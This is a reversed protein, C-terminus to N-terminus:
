WDCGKALLLALRELWVRDVEDFGDREACDVDIIAVLKGEVVVPVVVESKSDGDCAIHGPFADVDAVLQTQQTAAAAGCVGRGFPIQQCAVKGMFPGLILSQKTSSPDLVYFGAWNVANSPAPLSHYAHWLLSATNALNSHKILPNTLRKRARMEQKKMHKLNSLLSHSTARKFKSAVWNRQGDLLGEAQMLVQEYAEEKTVGNAFNSADAHVM